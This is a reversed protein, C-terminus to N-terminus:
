NFFTSVKELRQKRSVEIMRQRNAEKRQAIAELEAETKQHIQM